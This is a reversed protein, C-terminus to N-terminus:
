PDNQRAVVPVSQRLMAGSSDHNVTYTHPTILVEIIRSTGLETPWM